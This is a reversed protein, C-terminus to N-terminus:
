QTAKDFINQNFERKIYRRPEIGGIAQWNDGCLSSAVPNQTNDFCIKCHM